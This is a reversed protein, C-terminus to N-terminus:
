CARWPPAPRTPPSSAGPPWPWGGPPSRHRGDGAVDAAAGRHGARGRGRRAARHDGGRGRRAGGGPGGGRRARDGRCRRGARGGPRSRPPCRRLLRPWCRARTWKVRRWLCVEGGAQACVAGRGPGVRGSARRVSGATPSCGAEAQSSARGVHVLRPRDPRERWRACFVWDPAKKGAIARRGIASCFSVPVQTLPPVHLVGALPERRAHHAIPAHEHDARPSCQAPRSRAPSLASIKSGCFLAHPTITPRAQPRHIIAGTPLLSM